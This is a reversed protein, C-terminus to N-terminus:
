RPGYDPPEKTIHQEVKEMAEAMRELADAQRTLLTMIDKLDFNLGLM